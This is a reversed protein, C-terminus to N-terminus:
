MEMTPQYPKAKPLETRWGDVQKKVSPSPDTERANPDFTCTAGDFRLERKLVTPGSRNESVKGLVAEKDRWLFVIANADQELQGTERLHWKHPEGEAGERNLQCLLVIVIGLEQALRKIQTSLAGWLSADSASKSGTPKAILTFYDIVVSRVGQVRVMERIESEVRSFPVGSPHSWWTMRKVHERDAKGVLHTPFTERLFTRGNLKTLRAALRAEVEDDDMELSILGVAVGRTSTHVMSDIALATKGTKAAAGIIIVHGPAAEVADNWSEFPFWFLKQGQSPDRFPLGADLRALLDTGTRRRHEAAGASIAVLATSVDSLVKGPELVLDRASQDLMAAVRCMMRRDHLERLRRVLPEPHGFEDHSVAEWVGQYGGVLGDTRDRQTQAYITVPDIPEGRTYLSRMARWLANCQPVIFAEPELDFLARSSAGDHDRFGAFVCSVITRESQPDEPIPRIEAM